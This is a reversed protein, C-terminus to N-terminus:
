PNGRKTRAPVGPAEPPALSPHSSSAWLPREGPELEAKVRARLDDAAGGEFESGAETFIGADLTRVPGASM